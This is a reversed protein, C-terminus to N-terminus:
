TANRFAPCALEQCATRLMGSGRWIRDFENGVHPRTRCFAPWAHSVKLCFRGVDAVRARFGGVTPQSRGLQKASNPWCKSVLIPGPDASSPGVDVSNLWSRGPVPWCPAPIQACRNERWFRGRGVHAWFRCVHARFRSWCQGQSWWRQGANSWNQDSTLTPGFSVMM